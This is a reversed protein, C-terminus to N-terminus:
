EVIITGEMRDPHISCFYPYEGPTAFTQVFTQESAVPDSAFLQSGDAATEATVTHRSSGKNVWTVTEGAAIRTEGPDFEFESLEITAGQNVPAATTSSSELSETTSEDATAEEGGDDSSCAGVALGLAMTMGAAAVARRRRGQM